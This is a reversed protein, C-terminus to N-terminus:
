GTSVPIDYLVAGAGANHFREPAKLFIINPVQHVIGSFMIPGKFRALSRVAKLPITPLAKKDAPHSPLDELIGPFHGAM